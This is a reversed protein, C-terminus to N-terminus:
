SLRQLSKEEQPDIEMFANRLIGIWKSDMMWVHYSFMRFGNMYPRTAPPMNKHQFFFRSVLTETCEEDKVKVMHAPSLKDQKPKYTLEVHEGYCTKEKFMILRHAMEHTGELQVNSHGGRVDKIGRGVLYNDM